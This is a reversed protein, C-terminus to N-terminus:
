APSGGLDPPPPSISSLLTGLGRGQHADSVVFAVEADVTGPVRDYRAVAVLEDAHEGVLALRDHYDVHTFHDVEGASLGPHAIFFRGYVTEPSLRRYFRLLRNGDNPRIPRVHVTAGDTAPM